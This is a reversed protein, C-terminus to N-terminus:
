LLSKGFEAHNGQREAVLGRIGNCKIIQRPSVGTRKAVSLTPMSHRREAESCAGGIGYRWWTPGQSCEIPRTWFRRLGAMEPPAKMSRPRDADSVSMAMPM